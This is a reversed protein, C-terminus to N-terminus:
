QNGIMSHPKGLFRILLFLIFIGALLSTWPNAGFGSPIDGVLLGVVAVTVAYPLQTRVHDIHDIGASMSSMITTDSIPSCHDGFVAGALISSLSTVLTHMSGNDVFANTMGIQHAIPIIIPILIAMTAWSSGTAFSILAAMIFTLAPLMGPTIVGSCMKVIYNATELEKCVSGISWALSLIIMAMMMSRMGAIMSSLSEKLSLIRQSVAMVIAIISGLFSTWLLVRFSDANALIESFSANEVLRPTAELMNNYGNFYLGAFTAVVLFLIPIAANYWRVSIGTKPLLSESETDVIPTSGPRLVEGKERARKEAHFMAGMDRNLSIVFLIMIISFIPYFRYPITQLFILYPDGDIGYKTLGDGILGVEFGIWTSILAISSVPAATADVIYSLKERSIRLRDSIPRMTNGVILCNAYDDFFILLGIIWTAFQGRRASNALGSISQVIGKMGGSRTVVGVLGGLFLTFVVISVHDRDTLVEVAFYDVVGLLARFPSYDFLFFAGLWIGIMLSVVVERFVLAFLIAIIPPLITLFGPIVRLQTEVRKSEPSSTLTIDIKGSELENEINLDVSENSYIIAKLEKLVQGTEHSLITCHYELSDCSPLAASQVTLSFPIGSVVVKPTTLTLLNKDGGTEAGPLSTYSILTLIFPFFFWKGWYERM